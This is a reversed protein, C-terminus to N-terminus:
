PTQCWSTQYTPVFSVMQLFNSGEDEPCYIKYKRGQFQLSLDKFCLQTDTLSCPMVNSLGTNKKTNCASLVKYREDVDM